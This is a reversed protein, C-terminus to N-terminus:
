NFSTAKQNRYNRKSSLVPELAHPSWCHLAPVWLNHNRVGLACAWYGHCVSKTAGPYTPDEWILISGPDGAGASLNEVVLGGPFGQIVIKIHTHQPDARACPLWSRVLPRHKPHRTNQQSKVRGAVGEQGSASIIGWNYRHQTTKRIISFNNELAEMLVQLVLYILLSASKLFVLLSFM